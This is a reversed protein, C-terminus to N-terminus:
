HIDGKMREWLASSFWRGVYRELRESLGGEMSTVVGKKVHVLTAAEAEGIGVTFPPTRGYTWNETQLADGYCGVDVGMNEVNYVEGEGYARQFYHIMREEFWAHDLAPKVHQLNCVESRISAIGRSVLDNVTIAPKLCKSMRHVNANFLLTAHQLARKGTLKFASGSIKKGNLYIAQRDCSEVELGELHLVKCALRTHRDPEYSDRDTLIAFNTNGMDHYVTGGGSIRRILPVSEQKLLVPDCELWPNQNRGLVVSERNRYIMLVPLSLQSDRLLWEEFALNYFPSNNQSVIISSM